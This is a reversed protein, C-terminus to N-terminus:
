EETEGEQFLRTVERFFSDEWIRMEIRLARIPLRGTDLHELRVLDKETTVIWDAGERKKEISALDKQTYRYHDPFIVEKIVKMGHKKLLSSFALPNAIGSLALVKKGRLSGLEEREERPGILDSPEYHSHFLPIRPCVERLHRELPRCAEPTEVKTLM